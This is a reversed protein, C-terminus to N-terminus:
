ELELTKIEKQLGRYIEVKRQPKSPPQPPKEVLQPMVTRFLTEWTAPPIPQTQTDGPSRLILRIKSQEQVFAVLNAEHPTLAVTVTPSVAREEKKAGPVTTFEQGVALILVDQFLLMPTMQTIQKGEATVGPVPVLGVIDVHDGPRIMGGVSSLSDVPIAIARKGAPVKMSLSGELGTISVKNLLVQEGKSMPVLTFRDVVREISTAAKPQLLKRSITEEKLMQEKLVTGAPIDVKAIVVTTLNKLQEAERERAIKVQQQIYRNILAVAIIGTVTAIILPLHKKPIQLPM